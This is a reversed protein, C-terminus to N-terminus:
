KLKNLLLQKGSSHCKRLFNTYGGRSNTLYKDSRTLMFIDCMLCKIKIDSDLNSEHINKQDSNPFVNFNLVNSHKSKFYELVSKNDTALYIIEYSHIIQKNKQYLLEFDSKHDTNRVHIYLCPGKLSDLYKKCYDKIVPKPFCHRLFFSPQDPSLTKCKSVVFIDYIKSNQPTFLKIENHYSFSKKFPFDIKGDLVDLLKNELARPHCTMKPNNSVIKRITDEDYIINPINRLDFYDSLNIKYASNKMNLLLTRRQSRCISLTEIIVSLCDTLGGLPILLIYKM